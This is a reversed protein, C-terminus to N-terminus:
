PTPEAHLLNGAKDYVEVAAIIGKHYLTRAKLYGFASAVGKPIPEQNAKVPRKEM